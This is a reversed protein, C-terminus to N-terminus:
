RNKTYLGDIGADRGCAIACGKSEIQVDDGEPILNLGCGEYSGAPARWRIVGKGGKTANDFELRCEHANRSTSLYVGATFAFRAIWLAGAYGDPPAYEAFAEYVGTLAGLEYLRAIYIQELCAAPQPGNMCGERVALFDRQSRVLATREKAAQRSTAAAYLAAAQRDLWRLSQVACIEKESPTQAKACDFSPAARAGITLAFAVCAFVTARLMM